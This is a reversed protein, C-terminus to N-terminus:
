CNGYKKLTPLKFEPAEPAKASTKKTKNKYFTTM